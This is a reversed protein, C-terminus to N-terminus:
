EALRLQCTRGTMRIETPMASTIEEMDGSCSTCRRPTTIRLLKESSEFSLNRTVTEDEQKLKHNLLVNM